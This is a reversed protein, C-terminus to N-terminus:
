RKRTTKNQLPQKEWTQTTKALLMETEISNEYGGKFDHYMVVDVYAVEPTRQIDTIIFFMEPTKALLSTKDLLEVNNGKATIGQINEFEIGHMMVYVTGHHAALREAFEPSNLATQILMKDTSNASHRIAPNKDLCKIM